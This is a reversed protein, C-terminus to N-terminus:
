QAKPASQGSKILEFCTALYNFTTVNADKSDYTIPANWRGVADGSQAVIATQGPRTPTKYFNLGGPGHFLERVSGITIEVAIPGRSETVIHLDERLEASGRPCSSIASECAQSSQPRYFVYVMDRDVVPVRGAKFWKIYYESLKLYADHATLLGWHGNWLSISTEGEFPRVYSSEAWDNWTVIEVWDSNSEIAAKWQEAMGTFGDSEFVRFNQKLGRYYPTVPAMYLKSRHHTLKAGTRISQAITHYRGAAGFYFLGDAFTLDALISEITAADPTEILAGPIKSVNDPRRVNPVFFVSIGEKNLGELIERYWDFTGGYTSLVPRNSQRLYSPENSFRRVMDIVEAASLGTSADASFFLKFGDRPAAAFLRSSISQYYPEKIWAGVNVAFGDIGARAALDMEHRLAVPSANHGAFPCCAMYHAFVFREPRAAAQNPALTLLLLAGILVLWRQIQNSRFRPNCLLSM